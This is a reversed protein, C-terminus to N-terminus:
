QKIVINFEESVKYPLNNMIVDYAEDNTGLEYAKIIEQKALNSYGALYDLVALEAWLEGDTPYKGISQIIFNRDIDRNGCMVMVRAANELFTYDLGALGNDIITARYVDLSDDCRGAKALILGYTDITHKDPFLQVARESLQIAQIHQNNNALRAAVYEMAGIDEKSAKLNSKELTYEDRWDMGRYVTRILLGSIIIVFLSILFLVTKKSFKVEQLTIVAMGLLGIMPFIFWTDNATMDLPIIQLHFLMGVCFWAAFFIYVKILGKSKYNYLYRGGAVAVSILLLVVLLPLFFNKFSIKDIVWYYGRAINVPMFFTTFYSNIIAPIHLMRHWFDLSGIPNTSSNLIHSGYSLRLIIYIIGAPLSTVLFAPLKKINALAIYLVAIVGFLVGTEKSLCSLLLLIAVFPYVKVSKRYLLLLMASLGFFLYLPEQINMIAFVVMSNIPHVLFILSFILALEKKVFYRFLYYLEICVALYLIIQLIHFATVGSGFVTYILAFWLSMIPRYFGSTPQGFENYFTGGKFLESVHSLSHVLPNNVIQNHDDLVFPNHVSWIFILLGLVMIIIVAKFDTIKFFPHKKESDM